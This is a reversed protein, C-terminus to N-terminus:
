PQDIGPQAKRISDRAGQLESILRDLHEVVEDSKTQAEQTKRYQPLSAARSARIIEAEHRKLTILIWEILITFPPDYWWHKNYPVYAHGDDLCEDKIAKDYYRWRAGIPRGTMKEVLRKLRRNHVIGDQKKALAVAKRVYEQM